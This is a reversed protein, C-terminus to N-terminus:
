AVDKLIKKLLKELNVARSDAALKGVAKKAASQDGVLTVQKVSRTIATYLMSRELLGVGPMVPMIVRDWQSGQSKHVTIAYALVVNEMLDLQTAEIINGGFDISCLAADVSTAEFVERVFGMSGNRLEREYDNVKWLVPDGERFVGFHKKDSLNVDSHWSVTKGKSNYRNQCATNLYACDAVRPAIIQTEGLELFKGYLDTIIGLPDRKEQIFSVGQMGDIEELTQSPIAPWDGYRIAYAVVPIGSESSQRKVTKLETQPVGDLGALSHLVKGPGVPALQYPDGVIVLRCGLPLTAIVRRFSLVDVMSAEDIVVWSGLPIDDPSTHKVFGAITRAELGTSETMRLAAKGSLALQYIQSFPERARILSYLCKLVTTKGTGAGGLILSINNESSVTVAIRQETTLSYGEGKEFESILHSASAQADLLSAQTNSESNRVLMAIYSAVSKEILWAGASALLGDYGVVQGNKAAVNLALASLQNDNLLRQSLVRMLSKAEAATSGQKSRLYLAEDVAACLRHISDPQVGIKTVAFRDVSEWHANFSVLRYPNEMIKQQCEDGYFDMVKRALGPHMCVSDLWTITGRVGDKNFADCLSTASERTLVESLAGLDSTELLGVLEKGFTNDLRHAKVRGVGKVDPSNIMWNVLNRQSPKLMYADEAYLQDENVTFEGRLVPKREIPGSVHWVQGPHLMTSDSLRKYTLHVTYPKTTETLGYFIAGGIKGLSRISRVEVEVAVNQHNESKSM